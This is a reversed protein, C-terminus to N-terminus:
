RGDAAVVHVSNAAHDQGAQGSQLGEFETYTQPSAPQAARCAADSEAAGTVVPAAM